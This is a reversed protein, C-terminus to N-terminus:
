GVRVFTGYFVCTGNPTGRGDQRVVGNILLDVNANQVHFEFTNSGSIVLEQVTSAPQGVVVANGGGVRKAMNITTGSTNTFKLVTQPDELNPRNDQDQCTASLNGIGPQGRLPADAGVANDTVATSSGFTVADPVGAIFRAPIQGKDPGRSNTAVLKGAARTTSTSAAVASKGDVAGANRAFNVAAISTGGLAVFLAICAVTMAPSPKHLKPKM